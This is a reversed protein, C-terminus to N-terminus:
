RGFEQKLGHILLYIVGALDQGREDFRGVARQGVDEGAQDDDNGKKM